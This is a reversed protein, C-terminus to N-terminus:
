IVPVPGDVRERRRAHPQVEVFVPAGFALAFEDDVADEPGGFDGDGVTARLDIEIGGLQVLEEVVLAIGGGRSGRFGVGFFWCRRLFLRAGSGRPPSPEDGGIERPRATGAGKPQFRM